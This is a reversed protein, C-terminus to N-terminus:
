GVYWYVICIGNGGDGGSGSGAGGGAGLGGDAADGLVGASGNGYGAEGGNYATSSFFLGAGGNARFSSDGAVAVTSVAASETGGKGGRSFINAFRSDTGDAGPGGGSNGAGGSGITVTVSAEPTVLVQGVYSAAASGGNGTGLSPPESGGGGGGWLEIFVLNVGKPVTFTGSTTFTQSSYLTEDFHVSSSSM